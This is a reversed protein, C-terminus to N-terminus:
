GYNMDTHKRYQLESTCACGKHKQCSNIISNKDKVLKRIKQRERERERGREGGELAGEERRSSRREDEGHTTGGDQLFDTAKLVVIM